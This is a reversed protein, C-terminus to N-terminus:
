AGAKPRARRVPKAVDGTEDDKFLDPEAKSKVAAAIGSSFAGLQPGLYQMAARGGAWASLILIMGGLMPWVESPVDLWKLGRLIILALTFLVVLWLLARATSQKGREDRFLSM